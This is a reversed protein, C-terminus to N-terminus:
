VAAEERIGFRKSTHTNHSKTTTTNNSINDTRGFKSILIPMKSFIHRYLNWMILTIRSARNDIEIINVM